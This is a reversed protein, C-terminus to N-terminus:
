DEDYFLSEQVPVGKADAELNKIILELNKKTRKLDEEQEFEKEYKKSDYTSQEKIEKELKKFKKELIKFKDTLELLEKEKEKKHIKGAKTVTFPDSELEKLHQTLGEIYGKSIWYEKSLLSREDLLETYSKSKKEDLFKSLDKEVKKLTDKLYKIGIEPMKYGLYILNSM